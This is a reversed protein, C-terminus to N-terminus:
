DNELCWEKWKEKTMPSFRNDVQILHKNSLELELCAKDLAKELQECRDNWSKGELWTMQLENELGDIKKRLIQNESELQDLLQLLSKEKDSIMKM